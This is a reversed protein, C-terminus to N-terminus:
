YSSKKKMEADQEWNKKNFIQSQSFYEKQIQICDHKIKFNEYRLQQIEQKMQLNEQKIKQNDNQITTLMKITNKM